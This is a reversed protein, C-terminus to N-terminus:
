GIINEKLDQIILEACVPIAEAVGPTCAENFRNTDAVEIALIDIKRPLALGLRKGLELATTLNVDHTSTAHRTAKFEELGLRYIRGVRGEKTQIADVIIARDYGVLLDLLNLGALSAEMVTVNEDLKGELERAVRPGVGDDACIPNGLGLVLTKM